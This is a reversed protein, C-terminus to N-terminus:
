RWASIATSRYSPFVPAHLAEDPRRGVLDSIHELEIEIWKLHREWFWALHLKSGGENEEGGRGRGPGGVLGARATVDQVLDGTRGGDNGSGTDSDRVRNGVQLVSKISELGEHLYHQSQAASSHHYLKYVGLTRTQISRPALLTNTPEERYRATRHPTIWVMQM